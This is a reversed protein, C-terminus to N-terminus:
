ELVAFDYPKVIGSKIKAVLTPATTPTAYIAIGEDDMVYLRGSVPGLLAKKPSNDGALTITQTPM